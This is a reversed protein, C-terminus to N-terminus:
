YGECYPGTCAPPAGGAGPSIAGTMTPHISCHYNTGAGPMTVTRSTAGPAIDGTDITGDNLQVRHAVSDANRFVVTLGGATAPNPSFSRSGNQGTITITMAGSSPSASPATPSSSGYGDSGGCAAMAALTTALISLTWLRFQM